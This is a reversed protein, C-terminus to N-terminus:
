PSTNVPLVLSLTDPQEDWHMKPSNGTLQHITLGLVLSSSTRLITNKTLVMHGGPVLFEWQSGGAEGETNGSPPGTAEKPLSQLVVFQTKDLSM